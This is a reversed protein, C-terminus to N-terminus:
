TSNNGNKKMTDEKVLSFSKNKIEYYKPSNTGRFYWGRKRIEKYVEYPLEEVWVRINGSSIRRIRAIWDQKQLWEEMPNQPGNAPEKSMLLEIETNKGM